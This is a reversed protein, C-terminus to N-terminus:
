LGASLSDVLYVAGLIGFPSFVLTGSVGSEVLERFDPSVLLSKKALGQIL